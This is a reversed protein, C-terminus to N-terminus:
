VPWEGEQEVADLGIMELRRVGESIVPATTGARRLGAAKSRALAAPGAFVQSRCIM